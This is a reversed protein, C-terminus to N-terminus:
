PGRALQPVKSKMTELLHCAGIGKWSQRELWKLEKERQKEKKFVGLIKTTEPFGIFQTIPLLRSTTCVPLFKSKRHSSYATLWSPLHACALAPAPSRCPPSGKRAQPQVHDATWRDAWRSCRRPIGEAVSMQSETRRRLSRRWTPSGM